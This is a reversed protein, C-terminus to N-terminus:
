RRTVSPAKNCCHDNKATANSLANADVYRYWWCRLRNLGSEGDLLQLAELRQEIYPWQVDTVKYSLSLRNARLRVDLVPLEIALEALQESQDPSRLTTLRIARHMVFANDTM